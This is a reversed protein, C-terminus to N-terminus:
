RRKHTYTTNSKRLKEVQWHTTRKKSPYYDNRYDYIFLKLKKKSEILCIVCANAFIISAANIRVFCMTWSQNIRDYCLTRDNKIRTFYTLVCFQINREFLMEDFDREDVSVLRRYLHVTGKSTKKKKRRTKDTVSLPDLAGPDTDRKLLANGSFTLISKVYFHFPSVQM